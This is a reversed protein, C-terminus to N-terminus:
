GAPYRDIRVLKCTASPANSPVPPLTGSWRVRAGAPVDEATPSASTITTGDPGVLHVEIVYDAPDDTPNRVEGDVAVGTADLKCGDLSVDKQPPHKANPTGTAVGGTGDDQEPRISRTGVVVAAGVALLSV